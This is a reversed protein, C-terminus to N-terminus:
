ARQRRTPRPRSSPRSGGRAKDRTVNVTEMLHDLCYTHGRETPRGCVACREQTLVYSVPALVRTVVGVALAVLAGKLAIGSWVDADGAQLWHLSSALWLAATALMLMSGVTLFRRSM